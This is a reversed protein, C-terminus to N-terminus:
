CNQMYNGGGRLTLGILNIISLALAPDKLYSKASVRGEYPLNSKYGLKTWWSQVM